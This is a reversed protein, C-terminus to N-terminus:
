SRTGIASMKVQMRPRSPCASKKGAPAVLSRELYPYIPRHQPCECGAQTTRSVGYPSSVWYLRGALCLITLALWATWAIATFWALLM